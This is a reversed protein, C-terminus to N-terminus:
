NSQSKDARASEEDFISKGKFPTHIRRPGCSFVRREPVDGSATKNVKLYYKITRDSKQPALSNVYDVM